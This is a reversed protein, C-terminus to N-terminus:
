TTELVVRVGDLVFDVAIAFLVIGVIRSMLRLLADGALRFILGATAFSVFTVALVISIAALTNGTGVQATFSTTAALAGPGAILPTALPVLAFDMPERSHAADVEDPQGQMVLRYAPPLLLLGAAVRFSEESIGLFELVEQGGLSFALLMAFAASVAITAAILRQRPAFAQSYLHFVLINGVPDIIAFFSLLAQLM